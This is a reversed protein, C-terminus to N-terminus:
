QLPTIEVVPQQGRSDERKWEVTVVRREGPLLSFYNDSYIVPLIQEGDEGKLNLRLFPALTKGSNTITVEAKYGDSTAVTKMSQTLAPKPLDNIASYNGEESGIFYDNQSVMGSKDKLQLRLLYVKNINSHDVTAKLVPVTSDDISNVKSQRTWLRKGTAVDYLTATATLGSRDGAFLNVVEISDTLVNWQIHLPECAKKVGFYAATPDLYYDYTQWVMSPWCPHSMWILLGSRTKSGSEFMARYGQYNILQAWRLFHESQSGKPLTSHLTYLSSDKPLTSHLTYLTSNAVATTEASPVATAFEESKVRLEESGMAKAVLGNFELARQAGLLTYDHQGWQVSQPWLADPSFTRRMSEINMVAPMGRETHIKGSQREFYVKAPQACYPGHGTVGDDASSSIYSLGPSLTSVFQRLKRDINKPPYGENRGCYIGIAAHQRIRRVYDEANALFMRDDYPDPGDAPNALWFDQWIMIGLSDCVDYFARDGTQGVWNRIMTCHMDRHYGVAAEYERRGYQLNHESFGWNGGLPVFRRGNIYILLSDNLHEYTMQCLGAKYNLQSNLISFQFNPQATGAELSSHLTYLSSDKPLTSHLTYLTSNAVATTEVSPVASGLQESNVILQESGDATAFEVSETRCEVSGFSFGADYLYPEGYGNPWWLRFNSCALQPFDHPSFTVEHESNAPLTIRKEFTVDGIWGKLTGTVATANHNKVFVSPWVSVERREGSEVKWKGSEGKWKGSEEKWKGREEKGKGSEGKWKGREEKRKIETKVYPDSLTVGLPMPKLYVDGWIGAERGRTTTIWDWGITAHFTPNDAGLIGGNFQTTNENKEKVSGFHENCEIEVAIYNDGEHLLGTVDFEGRQFAGEIRGLRVGNLFVNAKWNIGDFCLLTGEDTKWKRNDFKLKGNDIRLKGRYWFNSRFYSESIQDIWDAYNPNPVAGINIYSTLVTGPVTAPLWGEDDFDASAIEEGKAWVESARQLQWDILSSHLTFLSSNAVASPLTSHLTYLTSNAVATTEASPVATAFEESKMRLEESGVATAFEESKVRLEESGDATAFEESKVRLEESGFVELERLAYYGSENPEEMVLTVTRGDDSTESHWRRPEQYWYPVISTIDCPAGLDVKLWQKGGGNSMWMSCFEQSSQLWLEQGNADYFHLDHLDWYAAGEMELLLRYKGSEEKWKGSEVRIENDLLRAPLYSADEQKNPDSHLKYHLPKGPLGDGTLEGLTTWTIGDDSGQWAIRYGKTAKTEDYAVRGDLVIKSIERWKGSEEKWKGSEEKWKGSEVKWEYAIWTREGKLVNSSWENGDLTWEAERKPLRGEPTCVVLPSPERDDCIGDTVLHATLNYDVSSSAWAARHLSLNRQVSGEGVTSSGTILSPGHYESPRGPYVGIGRTYNSDPQATAVMPCLLLLTILKM